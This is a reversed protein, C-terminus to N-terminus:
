GKAIEGTGSKGHAITFIRPTVGIVIEEQDPEMEVETRDWSLTFASLVNAFGLSFLALLYTRTIRRNVM